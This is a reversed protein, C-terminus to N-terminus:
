PALVLVLFCLLFNTVYYDKKNTVYYDKKNGKKKESVSNEESILQVLAEM